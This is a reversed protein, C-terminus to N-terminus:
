LRPKGWGIRPNSTFWAEACLSDSVRTLLRLEAAKREVEKQERRAGTEEFGATEYWYVQGWRPPM